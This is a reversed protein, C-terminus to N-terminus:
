YMEETWTENNAKFGWSLLPQPLYELVAELILSPPSFLSTDRSLASSPVIRCAENLYPGADAGTHTHWWSAKVGSIFYLEGVLNPFAGYIRGGVGGREGKEM